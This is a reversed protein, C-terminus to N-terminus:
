FFAFVISIAESELLIRRCLERTSHFIYELMSRRRQIARILSAKLLQLRLRSMDQLCFWSRLWAAWALRRSTDNNLSFFRSIWPQLTHALANIRNSYGNLWKEFGLHFSCRAIDFSLTILFRNDRLAPSSPFYGSPWLFAHPLIGKLNSVM